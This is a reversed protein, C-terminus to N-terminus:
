GRDPRVAREDAFRVGSDMETERAGFGARGFTLAALILGVLPVCTPWVVLAWWGRLPTFVALAAPVVALWIVGGPDAFGHLAIRSEFSPSPMEVFWGHLGGAAFSAVGLGVCIRVGRIFQPDM